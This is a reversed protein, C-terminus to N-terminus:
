SPKKPSPASIPCRSHAKKTASDALRKKECRVREADYGAWRVYEQKPDRAGPTASDTGRICKTDMPVCELRGHTKTGLADLLKRHPEYSESCRCPM